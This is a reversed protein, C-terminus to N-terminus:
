DWWFFWYRSDQLSAALASVTETGQDVIDNCYWYQQWALEVAQDRSTPPRDVACEITDSTISIVRAGYQEQWYRLVACHEESKPCSNWNGYGLSAPAKWPEDVPVGGLFVEDKTSGTLVDTHASLTGSQVKELPWNGLLESENFEYSPDYQKMEEDNDLRRQKFWEPMPISMSKDLVNETTDGSELAFEANEKVRLLEERDGLLIWTIGSTSALENRRELELPAAKGPVKVLQVGNFDASETSDRM